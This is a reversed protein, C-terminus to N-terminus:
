PQSPQFLRWHRAQGRGHAVCMIKPWEELQALLKSHKAELEQILVQSQLGKMAEAHADQTTHRPCPM